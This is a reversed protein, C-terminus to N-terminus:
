PTAPSLGLVSRLGTGFDDVDLLAVGLLRLMSATAPDADPMPHLSLGGCLAGLFGGIQHGVFCVSFLAGLNPLRYLRAVSVCYRPHGYMM